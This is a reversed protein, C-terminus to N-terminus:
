ALLFAWLYKRSDATRWGVGFEQDMLLAIGLAMPWKLLLRILGQLQKRSCSLRDGRPSACACHRSEAADGRM